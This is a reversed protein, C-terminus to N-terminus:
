FQEHKKVTVEHKLMEAIGFISFLSLSMSAVMMLM